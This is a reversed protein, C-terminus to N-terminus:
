LYISNQVIPIFEFNKNLCTQTKAEIATSIPVKDYVATKAAFMYQLPVASQTPVGPLSLMRPSPAPLLM